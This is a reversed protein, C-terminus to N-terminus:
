KVDSFYMEANANWKIENEKRLMNTIVRLTEVLNLIFRRLFNIRGIFSHVENKNRLPDIKMIAEIRRPDIRIGDESIIHVLFKGEEIGFLSKETELSISFKTCKEFVIKLHFLNNINTKSFMTIDDLYLVIFKDKEYAFDIDM